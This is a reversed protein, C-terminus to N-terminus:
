FQQLPNSQRPLFPSDTSNQDNSNNYCNDGFSVCNLLNTRLLPKKVARQGFFIKAPWFIKAKLFSTTTFILKAEGLFNFDRYVKLAHKSDKIYSPLYKISPAVSKNVIVEWSWLGFFDIKEKNVLSCEFMWVLTEM